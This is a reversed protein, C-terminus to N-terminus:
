LCQDVRYQNNDIGSVPAAGRGQYDLVDCERERLQVASGVRCADFDAVCGESGQIDHVISKM